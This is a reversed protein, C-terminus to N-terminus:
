KRGDGEWPINCINYGQKSFTPAMNSNPQRDNRWETRRDMM